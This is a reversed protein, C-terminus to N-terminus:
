QFVENQSVASPRTIKDSQSMDIAALAVAYRVALEYSSHEKVLVLIHDLDIGSQIFVDDKGGAAPFCQFTAMLQLCASGDRIWAPLAKGDAGLWAGVIRSNNAFASADFKKPNLGLAQSVDHEVQIYDSASKITVHDEKTKNKKM